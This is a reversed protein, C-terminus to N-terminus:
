GCKAVKLAKVDGSLRGALDRLGSAVAVTAATREEREDEMKLKGEGKKIISKRM